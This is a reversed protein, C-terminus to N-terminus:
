SQVGLIHHSVHIDMVVCSSLCFVNKNCMCYGIDYPLESLLTPKQAISLNAPPLQTQMFPSFIKCMQSSLTDQKLLQCGLSGAFNSVYAIDLAPHQTHKAISVPKSGALRGLNSPLDKVPDRTKPHPLFVHARFQIKWLAHGHVQARLSGGGAKDKLKAALPGVPDSSCRHM